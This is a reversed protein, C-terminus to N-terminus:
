SSTSIRALKELDLVHISRGKRAIIKKQELETLNRSLSEVVTGALQALTKRDIKVDIKSGLDSARGFKKHLSLLTAAIRTRVSFCELYAIREDRMSIMQCLFKILQQSIASSKAQIM